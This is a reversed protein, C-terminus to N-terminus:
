GPLTILQTTVIWEEFGLERFHVQDIADVRQLLQIDAGAWLTEVEDDSVSWPPGDMIAQDYTFRNLLVQAGPRLLERLRAVYRARRPADLAVLAARDWVRDFTGCIEPDLDFFDGCFVTIGPSTFVRFPGDEDVFPHLRQEDHFAVVAAPAIEVGAVEHGRGALFPIDVSKGCLPVLIRHHSEDLWQDLFTRLDPHVEGQHFGIRGEEWRSLWFERDM